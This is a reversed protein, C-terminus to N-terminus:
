PISLEAFHRFHRTLVSFIDPYLFMLAILFMHLYSELVTKCEQPNTATSCGMYFTFKESLAAFNNVPGIITETQGCFNKSYVAYADVAEPSGCAFDFSNPM